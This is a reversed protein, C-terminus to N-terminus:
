PLRRFVFENVSKFTSTFQSGPSEYLSNETWCPDFVILSDRLVENLILIKPSKTMLTCIVVVSFYEIFHLGNIHQYVM